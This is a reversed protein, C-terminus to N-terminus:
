TVSSTTATAASPNAMPIRAGRRARPLSRACPTSTGLTSRRASGRRSVTTWSAMNGQHNLAQWRHRRTIASRDLEALLQNALRRVEEDDYEPAREAAKRM